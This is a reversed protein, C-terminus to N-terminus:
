NAVIVMAHRIVKTGIKYGKRFEEKICIGIELKELYAGRFMIFLSISIVIFFLLTTEYSDYGPLGLNEAVYAATYVGFDNCCQIIADIKEQKAIKLILEKNSYDAKIYKDCMKQGPQNEISGTVIICYGLERLARILGLDNHSACLLLAKKM